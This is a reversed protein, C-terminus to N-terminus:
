VSLPRRIFSQRSGKRRMKRGRERRSRGGARAKRQGWGRGQGAGGGVEGEGANGGVAALVAEEVRGRGEKEDGNSVEGVEGGFEGAALGRGVATRWWGAPPAMAVM